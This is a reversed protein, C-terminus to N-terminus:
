EWNIEDAGIMIVDQIGEDGKGGTYNQSHYYGQSQLQLTQGVVISGYFEHRNDNVYVSGYPAYIDGTFTGGNSNFWMSYQGTYVLIIPRGKTMDASANFNNINDCIIYLPKSKDGEIPKDINFNLNPISYYIVDVGEKSMKSLLDSNANQQNQDTMKKTSEATEMPKIVDRYYSTVDIDGNYTPRFAYGKAVAENVTIHDTGNPGFAESNLLYFRYDTSNAATQSAAVIDGDYTSCNNRDQPINPNDPNQVNNVSNFSGGFTFMNNFLAFGDAGSTSAILKFKACGTAKINYDKGIFYKLFYLPVDEDLVVRFYMVQSESKRARYDYGLSSGNPHNRNKYEDARANALPHNDVTEKNIAMERAGSFAASDATNQLRSYHWYLNGLDIALGAAAIILPMVVATFIVIAGKQCTLLRYIKNM